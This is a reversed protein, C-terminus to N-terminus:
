AMGSQIRIYMISDQWTPTGTHLDPKGSTIGFKAVQNTISAISGNPLKRMCSASCELFIRPEKMRHIGLSTIIIQFFPGLRSNGGLTAQSLFYAGKFCM